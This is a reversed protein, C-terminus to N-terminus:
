KINNRPFFFSDLSIYELIANDSKIKLGGSEGLGLFIGKILRSKSSPKLIITENINQIFSNIKNCFVKFGDKEWLTYNIYFKNLIKLGINEISIVKNIHNNLKTTKWKTELTPMKVINLGIGAIIFDHSSELLVGSIKKKDVLIDNPWKLEINDSKIGMDCLVDLISFGVIISLQHWCSKNVKPKIITSLFLNGKMSEWKNNNRGRGNTQEYSLYSDGEKAGNKAAQFAIDNSSSCSNLINLNINIMYQKKGFISFSLIKFM